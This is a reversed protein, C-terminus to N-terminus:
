NYTFSYINARNLTVILIITVFLFLISNESALLIPISIALWTSVSLTRMLTWLILVQTERGNWWFFFSFFFHMNMLKRQLYINLKNFTLFSFNIISNSRKYYNTYGKTKPLPPSILSFKSAIVPYFAFLSWIKLEFNSFIIYSIINHAIWPWSWLRLRVKRWTLYCQLYM